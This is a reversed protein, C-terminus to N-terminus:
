YKRLKIPDGYSTTICSVSDGGGWSLGSSLTTSCMSFFPQRKCHDEPLMVWLQATKVSLSHHNAHAIGADLNGGWQELYEICDNILGPNGGCIRNIRDFEEDLDLDVGASKLKGNMFQKAAQHPLDGITQYDARLHEAGCEYEITAFYVQCFKKGICSSM